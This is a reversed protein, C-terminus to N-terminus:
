LRNMIADLPQLIMKPGLKFKIAESQDYRVRLRPIEKQTGM